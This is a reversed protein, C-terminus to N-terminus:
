SLRAFYKRPPNLFSSLKDTINKIDEDKIEPLASLDEAEKLVQEFKHILEQKEQM